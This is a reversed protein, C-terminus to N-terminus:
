EFIHAHFEIDASLKFRIERIKFSRLDKVLMDIEELRIRLDALMASVYFCLGIYFSMSILHVTFYVVYIGVEALWDIYFRLYM